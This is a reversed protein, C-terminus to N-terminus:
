DLHSYARDSSTTSIQQLLCMSIRMGQEAALIEVGLSQKEVLCRVQGAIVKNIPQDFQKSLDEKCHTIYVRVGCLAGKLEDAPADTRQWKRAPSAGRRAAVVERALVGLEAALHEPSLHGYLTADPRGAPYSCEIFVTRLAHPVLPAAAAWVARTRPRASLADPEVDGFFLLEHSSPDHRVFFATSEATAGSRMRGHSLPLARVSLSPAIPTYTASSAPLRRTRHAPATDPPPPTSM